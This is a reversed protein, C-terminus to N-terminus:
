QTLEELFQGASAIYTDVDEQTVAYSISPGATAIADWVGRNALYLKRADSIPLIVSAFSERGNRPAKETLRWQIRGGLRDATWPLGVRQIEAQLGVQLRQGLGDVREANEHTFITSLGALACTMSLANGYLTGGIALGHTDGVFERGPDVFLNGHVIAAIRDSMGVVGIPVGGAIGKGGTIIDPEFGFATTGGGHVAFQVHTEDVILVSGAAYVETNLATVFEPEPLVLGCNTLAPEVLVAAVDGRSLRRRLASVDNFPIVDCHEVTSPDLGLLEPSLEDADESRTWLTQDLHGHYKATL